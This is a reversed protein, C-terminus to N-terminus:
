DTLHGMRVEHILPQLEARRPAVVASDAAEQQRSAAQRAREAPTLVAGAGDPDGSALTAPDPAVAEIRGAIADYCDLPIHRERAVIHDMGTKLESARQLKDAMTAIATPDPTSGQAELSKAAALASRDDAPLNHWRDAAAHMVSAYQAVDAATLPRTACPSPTNSAAQADTGADGADDSATAAAAANSTTNAGDGSSSGHCAGIVLALLLAAVLGCRRDSYICCTARSM